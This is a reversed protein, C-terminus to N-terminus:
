LFCHLSSEWFYGLLKEGTGQRLALGWCPGIISVGMVKCWGAPCIVNNWVMESDCCQMGCGSFCQRDCGISWLFTVCVRLGSIYTKWFGLGLAKKKKTNKKKKVNQQDLTVRKKSDQGGPFNIEFEPSSLDPITSASFSCTINLLPPVWPQPLHWPLHSGGPQVKSPLSQASAM